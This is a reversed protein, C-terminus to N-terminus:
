QLRNDVEFCLFLIHEGKFIRSIEVQQDVPVTYYIEDVLEFERSIALFDRHASAIHMGFIAVQKVM